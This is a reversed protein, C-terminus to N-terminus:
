ITLNKLANHYSGVTWKNGWIRARLPSYTPKVIKGEEKRTITFIKCAGWNAHINYPSNKLKMMNSELHCNHGLFHLHVIGSFPVKFLTSLTIQTDAKKSKRLLNPTFTIWFYELMTKTIQLRRKLLRFFWEPLRFTLMRSIRIHKNKSHWLMRLGLTPLFITAIWLVSFWHNM